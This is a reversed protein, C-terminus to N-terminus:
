QPGKATGRVQSIVASFDSGFAKLLVPRDDSTWYFDLRQAAACRVATTLYRLNAPFSFEAGEAIHAHITATSQGIDDATAEVVILREEPVSTILVRQSGLKAITGARGLAGLLAASDLQVHAASDRDLTLLPKYTPFEAHVLRATLTTSDGRMTLLDRDLMLTVEDDDDFVAGAVRLAELPVLAEHGWGDADIKRSRTAHVRYSDTAAFSLSGSRSPRISVTTLVPIEPKVGVAPAVAAVCRNFEAMGTNGIIPPERPETPIATRPDIIQWLSARVPDDEDGGHLEVLRGNAEITVPGPPMSAALNRILNAGVMVTAEGDHEVQCHSEVRVALNDGTATLTTGVASLEVVEINSLRTPAALVDDLDDADITLKM